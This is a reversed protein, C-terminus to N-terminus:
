YGGMAWGPIIYGGFWVVIYMGFWVVTVSIQYYEMGNILIALVIKHIRSICYKLYQKQSLETLTKPFKFYENPSPM